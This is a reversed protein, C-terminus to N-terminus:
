GCVLFYYDYYYFFFLLFGLIQSALGLQKLGFIGIIALSHFLYKLTDLQGLKVYDEFLKNGLEGLKWCKWGIFINEIKFVATWDNSM